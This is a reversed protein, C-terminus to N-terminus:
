PGTQPLNKYASLAQLYDEHTNINFFSLAQPDLHSHSSMDIYNVAIDPFFSTVKRSKKLAKEIHPLCNQSYVACLPEIHNNQRPVAADFNPALANKLHNILNKHVFPTDCTTVFSYHSKSAKLGSYLGMLPGLGTKEDSTFTITANPSIKRYPDPNNTVIIIHDFIDALLSIKREILTKGGIDLFAKEPGGMRTQKGGSLIIANM